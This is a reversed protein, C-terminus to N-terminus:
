DARRIQEKKEELEAQLKKRETVLQERLSEEKAFDDAAKAIESNLAIERGAIKAAYQSDLEALENKQAATLKTAPSTKNLREMALEYASKM